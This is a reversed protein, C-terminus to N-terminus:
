YPMDGYEEFECFDDYAPAYQQRQQPRGQGRIQGQTQSQAPAKDQPKDGAFSVQEVNVTYATRANGSNDTYRQSQFSGDVAMMSGKAFYRGIFDATQRWATCPIFDTQRKGDAGAFNREVAITFRCISTGTNTQKVEPDATLRGMLVIRNIM